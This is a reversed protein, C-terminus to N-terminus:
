TATAGSSRIDETGSFQEVLFGNMEAQTQRIEGWFPVAFRQMWILVCWSIVAFITLDIGVRWDELFLLILVGAVLAIHGLVDIAFQSFFNSLAAVDGDVREVM